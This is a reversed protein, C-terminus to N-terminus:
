SRTMFDQLDCTTVPSHELQRVTLIIRHGRVDNGVPWPARSAYCTGPSRRWRRDVKVRPPRNRGDYKMALLLIEGYRIYKWNAVKFM